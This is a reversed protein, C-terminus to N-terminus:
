NVDGRPADSAKRSVTGCFYNTKGNTIVRFPAAAYVFSKDHVRVRFSDRTAGPTIEYKEDTSSWTIILKGTEEMPTVDSTWGEPQTVASTSREDYTWGVPENDLEALKSECRYGLEIKVITELSTNRVTYEYTTNGSDVTESVEINVTSPAAFAENAFLM